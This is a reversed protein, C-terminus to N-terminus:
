SITKNYVYTSFVRRKRKNNVSKLYEKPQEYYFNLLCSNCIYKGQNEEKETWYHWDNKKIYESTGPNYKVLIDKECWLCKKILHKKTKKLIM